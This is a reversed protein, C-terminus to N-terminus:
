PLTTYTITARHDSPSTVKKVVMCYVECYLYLFSIMQQCQGFKQTFSFLFNFLKFTEVKLM